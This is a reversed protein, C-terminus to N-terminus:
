VEGDMRPPNPLPMWHTPQYYRESNPAIMFPYVGMPNHEFIHVNGKDDCTLYRGCKDPLRESVPIWKVSDITPAHDIDKPCFCLQNYLKPFMGNIAQDILADADILRM